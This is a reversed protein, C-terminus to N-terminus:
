ILTIIEYLIYCRESINYSMTVTVKVNTVSRYYNDCIAINKYSNHYNYIIDCQKEFLFSVFRSDILISFLLSLLKKEKENKNKNRKNKNKSSLTLTLIVDYILTM